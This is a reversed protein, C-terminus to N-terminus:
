EYCGHSIIAISQSKDVTTVRADDRQAIARVESM